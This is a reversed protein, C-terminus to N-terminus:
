YFQLNKLSGATDCLLNHHIAYAIHLVYQGAHRGSLRKGNTSSVILVSDGVKASALLPLGQETEVNCSKVKVVMGSKKVIKLLGIYNIILFLHM